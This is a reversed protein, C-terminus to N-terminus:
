PHRLHLRPRVGTVRLPGLQADVCRHVGMSRRAYAHEPNWEYKHMGLPRYAPDHGLYFCLSRAAAEPLGDPISAPENNVTMAGYGSVTISQETQIAQRNPDGM